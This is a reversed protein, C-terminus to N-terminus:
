FVSSRDNPCFCNFGNAPSVRISSKFGQYWIKPSHFIVNVSDDTLNRRIALTVAGLSTGLDYMTSHPTGVLKALVGIQEVLAGYGPVSRQIMDEFVDAVKQDFEFPKTSTLPTRFIQDKKNM